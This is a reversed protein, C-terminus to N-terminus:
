DGDVPYRVGWSRRLEDATRAIALSEELPMLPSELEGARLRRM